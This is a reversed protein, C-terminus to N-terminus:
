VIEKGWQKVLSLELVTGVLILVFLLEYLSSSHKRSVLYYSIVIFPM